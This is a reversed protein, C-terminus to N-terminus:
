QKWWEDHSLVPGPLISSGGEISVVKGNQFKAVYDWSKAPGGDSTVFGQPGSATINSTYFVLEGEYPVQVWRQNVRTLMGALRKIGEAHPDSRDEFECEEKWLTGDERIVYPTLFQDDTDKTQFDLGPPPADPLSMECAIYDFMGM